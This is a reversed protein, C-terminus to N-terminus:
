RATTVSSSLIMKNTFIRDYAFGIPLIMPRDTNSWNLNVNGMNVPYANYLTYIATPMEGDDGTKLMGKAYVRIEISGAYENKYAIEYPLQDYSITGYATNDNYNVIYQMWNEFFTRINLDGDVIFEMPIIKYPNLGTVRNEGPGIVKRYYQTVQLDLEPMGIDQCRLTLLRKTNPLLSKLNEPVSILVEFSHTRAIGNNNVSSIFEQLKFSM